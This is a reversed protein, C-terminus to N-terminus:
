GPKVNIIELSDEGINKLWFIHSVKSNQPAYGFDFDTELLEMKGKYNSEPTATKPTTGPKGESTGAWVTSGAVFLLVTVAIIIRKIMTEGPAKHLVVVKSIIGM